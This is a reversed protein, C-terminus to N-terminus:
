DWLTVNYSLQLIAFRRQATTNSIRNEVQSHQYRAILYLDDILSLKLHPSIQYSENDVDNKALEGADAQNLHYNINLGVGSKQAVRYYLRVGLSTRETSGDLGSAPSIDHKGYLGFRGFEGQYNVDVNWVSGWKDDSLETQGFTIFETEQYRAGGSVFLVWLESIKKSIGITGSYLQIDATDYEYRGHNVNFQLTTNSFVKSWNHNLGLGVQHGVSDSFGDLEYAEDFYSYTFTADTNETARYTAFVSGNLRDRESASSTGLVLGTTDIDRDARSDRSFDASGGGQWRSTFVHNVKGSYFQDTADLEDRDQYLLREVRGSLDTNSRETRNRFTLEGSLTTIHDELEDDVTYFINDNYEEQAALKLDLGRDLAFVEAAWTSVLCFVMCFLWSLHNGFYKHLKM